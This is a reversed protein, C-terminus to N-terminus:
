LEQNGSVSRLGCVKRFMGSAFGDSKTFAVWSTYRPWPWAEPMSVWTSTGAPAAGSLFYTRAGCGRVLPAGFRGCRPARRVVDVLMKKRLVQMALRCHTMKQPLAKRWEWEVAVALALPMANADWNKMRTWATAARFTFPAFASVYCNPLTVHCRIRTVM